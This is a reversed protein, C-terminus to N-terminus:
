TYAKPRSLGLSELEGKVVQIVKEEEPSGSHFPPYKM